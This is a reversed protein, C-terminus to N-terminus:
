RWSSTTSPAGPPRKVAKVDELPITRFAWRRHPSLTRNFPTRPARLGSQQLV